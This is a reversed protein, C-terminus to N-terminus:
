FTVKLQGNDTDPYLITGDSEDSKYALDDIRHVLVMGQVCAFIREFKCNEAFLQFNCKGDIQITNVKNSVIHLNASNTREPSLIRCDASLKLKFNDPEVNKIYDGTKMFVSDTQRYTM